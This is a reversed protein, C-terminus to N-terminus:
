RVVKFSLTAGKAHGAANRASLTAKYSRPRLARSGLRGSFAVSNKGAGLNARVLTGLTVLRKCRKAHARKLKATPAVCRKGKRLGSARRKIAIRVEAPTSLTFRFATGLPAKKRKKASARARLPTAQRAVRFRKHSLSTASLKPTGGAAVPCPSVTVFSTPASPGAFSPVTGGAVTPAYGGSVTATGAGPGSTVYVSVNYAETKNPDAKVVEWVATGAGGAITVPATGAPGAGSPLVPSYIGGESSVLQLQSKPSSDVTSPVFIGTGTPVHDFVAKLRTGFDAVGAISLDGRAANGVLSSNFFNSESNYIAGAVNQDGSVVQDLRTKFATGTLETYRLAAVQQTACASVGTPAALVASGDPTRTSYDLSKQIFAVTPSPDTITPSNGAFSVSAVIPTTSPGALANADARINTVRLVRGSAGADLPVNAFTVQGASVQGQFVNPHGASGDYQGNGTDNGKLTCDGSVTQCALETTTHDPLGSNPEDILLLPEAWPDALLRSTVQTNLFVTLTRTPVDISMGTAPNGSCTLTIDGVEEAHGEARVSPTVSVNTACTAPSAAPAVAPETALVGAAAAAIGLVRSALRAM